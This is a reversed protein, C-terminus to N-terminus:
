HLMELAKCILISDNEGNLFWIKKQQKRQDKEKEMENKKENSM